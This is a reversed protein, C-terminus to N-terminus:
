ETKPAIRILENVVSEVPIGQALCMEALEDQISQNGEPTDPFLSGMAFVTEAIKQIVPIQSESTSEESDIM